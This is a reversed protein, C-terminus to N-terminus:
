PEKPEPLLKWVCGAMLIIAIASAIVNLEFGSTEYIWGSIAISIGLGCQGGAIVLGMLSGRQADSTLTTLLAMIPGTRLSGLLLIVATIMTASMLGKAWYILLPFVSVMAISAIIIIPKRASRDSIMGGSITGTVIGIGSIVFLFALQQVSIGLDEELWKPFFFIFFGISAFLLFYVLIGALPHSKKLLERYTMLAKPISLLTQNSPKRTEPLFRWAMFCAVAMLGGFIIFPSQFGFTDAILIGGPTGIILGCAVGTMILGTARGRQNYPFYDGVFAIMSGSYAGAAIGTLSRVILLSEYYYVAGHLLLVFAILATGAILVKRRGIRDSIPGVILTSIALSISYATGLLGLAFDSPDNQNLLEDQILPLLPAVIFLQCSVIFATLWLPAIIFFAHRHNVQSSTVSLLEEKITQSKVLSNLYFQSM